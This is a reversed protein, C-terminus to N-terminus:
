FMRTYEYKERCFNPLSCGVRNKFAYEISRNLAKPISAKHGGGEHLYHFAPTSNIELIFPKKNEDLIVDVGFVQFSAAYGQPNVNAKKFLTTLKECIDSLVSDHDFCDLEFIDKNIDDTTKENGLFPKQIGFNTVVVQPDQSDPKYERSTCRAYGGWYLFTQIDRESNMAPLVLVYIRLDFKYGKYLLPNKIYEQIVARKMNGIWKTTNKIEDLTLLQVGQGGYSLQSDSIEVPKVIWLTKDGKPSHEELWKIASEHKSKQWQITAPALDAMNNDRLFEAFNAKNRLFDVSTFHNILGFGAKSLRRFLDDDFGASRGRFIFDADDWTDLKSFELQHNAFEPLKNLSQLAIMVEESEPHDSSMKVYVRLKAPIQELCNTAGGLVNELVNTERSLLRECTEIVAGFFPEPDFAIGSKDNIEILKVEGSALVMFDFGFTEFAYKSEPYMEPAFDSFAARIVADIRRLVSDKHAAGLLADMDYVANQRTTFHTDHINKNAFDARKYPDLALVGRTLATLTIYKGDSGVMVHVRIHFKRGSSEGHAVYLLPDTIYEAIIYSKAGLKKVASIAQKLESENTVVSIGHGKYFGKGVPKVIWVPSEAFLKKYSNPAIQSGSYQKMMITAFENGWGSVTTYLKEKNVLHSKCSATFQNKILCNSKVTNKDYLYSGDEYILSPINGASGVFEVIRWGNKEFIDNYQEPKFYESHIIATKEPTNAAAQENGGNVHSELLNLMEPSLTSATQFGSGGFASKQGKYVDYNNESYDDFGGFLVKVSKAGVNGGEIRIEKKIHNWEENQVQYNQFKQSNGDHSARGKAIFDMSKQRVQRNKNFKHIEGEIPNRGVSGLSNTQKDFLYRVKHLSKNFSKRYISENKM